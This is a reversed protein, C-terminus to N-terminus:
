GPPRRWGNEKLKYYNNEIERLSEGWESPDVFPNNEAGNQMRAYKELTGNFFPHAGLRIDVELSKMYNVSRIFDERCGPYGQADIHEEELTWAGPGGFLGVTLPAGNNSLEFTFSFSGRTHGPTHFCKIYLDGCILIDNDKLAVDVAFTEFNDLGYYYGHSVRDAGNEVTEIDGEGMYITANSFEKPRRTAGCHDYHGHTHIIADIKSPDCGVARISETLLYASEAFGTDILVTHSGSKILHCSVRNTGVYYLGNVIQFAPARLVWPTLLWSKKGYM